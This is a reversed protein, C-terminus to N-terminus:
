DHSVCGVVQWALLENLQNRVIELSSQWVASARPELCVERLAGSTAGVQLLHALRDASETPYRGLGELRFRAVPQEFNKAVPLPGRGSEGVLTAFVSGRVLARNIVFPFL